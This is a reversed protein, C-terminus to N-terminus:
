PAQGRALNWAVECAVEFERVDLAEELTHPFMQGCGFTVTPIGYATLWNADLGGNSIALEPERGTARVAEIAEQVVPHGTPLAFSEYDLQGRFKVRGV